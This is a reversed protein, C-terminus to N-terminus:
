SGGGKMMLYMHAALLTTANDYFQGLGTNCRACLIARVCKGCTRQKSPCCGHDHDVVLIRDESGPWGCIACGGGQAAVIEDFRELGIGFKHLLGKDRECRRCYANLGDPRFNNTQFDDVVLWRDCRRCQKRGEEDRVSPDTMRRLPGTPHLRYQQNYHGMCLGTYRQPKDCGEFTCTMAARPMLKAYHNACWGRATVPKHCGDEICEDPKEGRPAIEGGVEGTEHHRKWHTQCMGRAHVARACQEVSCLGEVSMRPPPLLGGVSGTIRQREYHTKCLDRRNRKRDCGEVSCMESGTWRVAKVEAAGTDGGKRWRAYHAICYTLTSIPRECGEVSCPKGVNQNRYPKVAAPGPDGNQRWRAYHAPCWGRAQATKECGDIICTGQSMDVGKYDTVGGAQAFLHPPIQTDRIRSPTVSLRRLTM